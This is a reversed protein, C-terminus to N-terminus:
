FSQFEHDGGKKITIEINHNDKTKIKLPANDITRLKNVLSLVARTVLEGSFDYLVRAGLSDDLSPRNQLLKLGTGEEIFIERSTSALGINALCINIKKRIAMELILGQEEFTFPKFLIPEGIRSVFAGSFMKKIEKTTRRLIDDYSLKNNFGLAKTVQEDMGGPLNITFFIILSTCDIKSGTATQVFGTELISLFLDALYNRTSVPAHDLDAVELCVPGSNCIQEFKGPLYSQVIGRGSGLLMSSAQHIDTFSAADISYFAVGLYEAILQSLESKGVGAVGQFLLRLPQNLPRTLVEKWLRIIALEIAKEQGILKSAAFKQLNGKEIGEILKQQIYDARHAIQSKGLGRFSEKKSDILKLIECPDENYRLMSKIMPRLLDIQINQAAEEKFFQKLRRRVLEVRSSDVGPLSAEQHLIFNIIQDREIEGAHLRIICPKTPDAIKGQGSGFIAEHEAHKGYFFVAKEKSIVSMFLDVEDARDYPSGFGLCISPLGLYGPTKKNLELVSKVPLIDKVRGISDIIRKQLKDALIVLFFDTLIVSDCSLAVCLGSELLRIVEIVKRCIISDEALEHFTVPFVPDVVSRIEKYKEDLLIHKNKETAVGQLYEALDIVTEITSKLLSIRTVTLPELRIRVSVGTLDGDMKVLSAKEGLSTLYDIVTQASIMTNAIGKVLGLNVKLNLNDECIFAEVSLIGKGNSIDAHSGEFGKRGVTLLLKYPFYTEFLSKLQNLTTIVDTERATIGNISEM